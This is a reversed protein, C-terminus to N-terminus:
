VGRSSQMHNQLTKQEPSHFTHGAGNMNFKAVHSAKALHFTVICTSTKFQPEKHEQFRGQSSHAWPLQQNLSLPSVHPVSRFGCMQKSVVGSLLVWFSCSCYCALALVLHGLELSLRNGGDGQGGGGSGLGVVGAGGAGPREHSGPDRGPVEGPVGSVQGLQLAGVLAWQVNHRSRYVSSSSM